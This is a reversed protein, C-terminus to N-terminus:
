PGVRVMYWVGALPKTFNHISIRIQFRLVFSSDYHEVTLLKDARDLILLIHAHPLGRKQVEITYLNGIVKGV